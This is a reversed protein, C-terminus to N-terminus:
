KYKLSFEKITNALRKVGEVIQDKTAYSFNIRMTNNGGGNAFFASGIVYAVNNAVATEFMDDASMYEPLNLFLFLGGDPNTWSLGELKPLYKEFCEMMLNKKDRYINIVKEIHPELYGKECFKAAVLQSFAPTCLDVSQKGVTLKQIIRPHAIIWGLRIGPVFIKSFTHLSIVNGYKDMSHILPLQENEFRIERYPSDEIILFKYEESLEILQKRREMSLTVGSPNQFDPILYVFKYHEEEVRLKEVVRALEDIIMGDQDMPVGIFSAGYSRFAQIAGLYSPMEVIIPDAPDIFTRGILDLAQQSATTILIHDETVGKLGNKEALKILEKKLQPTGETSGYQLASSGQEKLVENTVEMIQEVPFAAPDPLGGAFSIIEPKDTLKLLERIVSKKARRAMASYNKTLDIM